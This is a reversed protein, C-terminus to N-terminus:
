LTMQNNINYENIVSDINIEGRLYSQVKNIGALVQNRDKAKEEESLQEYPVAQSPNGYNPDFVWENRQLWANHVLSAM